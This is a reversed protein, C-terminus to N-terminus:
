PFICFLIKELKMKNIWKNETHNISGVMKCLLKGQNVTCYAVVSLDDYNTNM